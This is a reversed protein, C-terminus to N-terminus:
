SVFVTYVTYLPIYHMVLHRIVKQNDFTALHNLRYSVHTVSFTSCTGGLNLNMQVLKRAPSYNHLGTLRTLWHSIPTQFPGLWTALHNPHSHSSNSLRTQDPHNHDSSEAVSSKSVTVPSVRHHTKLCMFMLRRVRFIAGVTREQQKSKGTCLQNTTEVGRILWNPHNNGIYPFFM